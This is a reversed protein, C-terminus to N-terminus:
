STCATSCTWQSPWPIKADAVFIDSQWQLLSLSVTNKITVTARAVYDPEWHRRIWSLRISPNLVPWTLDNFSTHIHVKVWVNRHRLCVFWGNEQLLNDGVPYRYGDMPVLPSSREWTTGMGDHVNRLRSSRRIFRSHAREVHNKTSSSTGLLFVSGRVPILILSKCGTSNRFGPTCGM